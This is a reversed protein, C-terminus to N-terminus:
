PYSSPRFDHPWHTTTQANQFARVRKRVLVDLDTAFSAPTMCVYAVLRRLEHIQL